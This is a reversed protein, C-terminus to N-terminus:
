TPQFKGCTHMGDYDPHACQVCPEQSVLKALTERALDTEGHYDIDAYQELAQRMEAHERAMQLLIPADNRLAYVLVADTHKYFHTDQNDGIILGLGLGVKPAQLWPAPTAMKELKELQEIDITM